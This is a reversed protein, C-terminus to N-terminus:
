GRIPRVPENARGLGAHGHALEEAFTGEGIDGFQAVVVDGARSHTTSLRVRQEVRARLGQCCGGCLAARVEAYCGVAVTDLVM